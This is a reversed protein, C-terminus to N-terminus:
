RGNPDLHIEDSYRFALVPAAIHLKAAVDIWSLGVKPIGLSLHPSGIYDLVYSSGSASTGVPFHELWIADPSVQHAAVIAEKLEERANVISRGQAGAIASIIVVQTGNKSIIAVECRTEVPDGPEPGLVFPSCVEVTEGTPGRLEEHFDNM